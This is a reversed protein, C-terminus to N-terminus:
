EYKCEQCRYIFKKETKYAHCRTILPINKYKSNAVSTWRQWAPGHADKLLGDILFAAAHCMEHILTDRMRDPKDCVKVSIHIEVSAKKNQVLKRCYGGSSTLKPNWILKTTKPLKNEFVAENFIAYCENLLEQKCDKFKSEYSVVLPDKLNVALLLNLYSTHKVTPAISSTAENTKINLSHFCKLSELSSTSQRIDLLSYSSSSSSFTISSM